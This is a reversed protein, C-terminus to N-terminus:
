ERARGSADIRKRLISLFQCFNYFPSLLAQTDAFPPRLLVADCLSAKAGTFKQQRTLVFANTRLAEREAAYRTSNYAAAGVSHWILRWPAAGSFWRASIADHALAFHAIYDFGRRAAAMKSRAPLVLASSPTYKRCPRATDDPSYFQAAQRSGLADALPAYRM